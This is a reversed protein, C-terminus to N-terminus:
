TGLDINLTGYYILGLRIYNMMACLVFNSHIVTLRLFPGGVELLKKLFLNKIVAKVSVMLRVPRADFSGFQYTQNFM